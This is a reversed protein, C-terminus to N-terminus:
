AHLNRIGALVQFRETLKQEQDKQAQLANKMDEVTFLGKMYAHRLAKSQETDCVLCVPPTQGKFKQIIGDLKEQTMNPMDRYMQILHPLCTGHSFTYKEHNAKVQDSVVQMEKKIEDPVTEAFKEMGKDNIQQCWACIVVMEKAM